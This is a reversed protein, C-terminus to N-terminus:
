YYYNYSNAFSSGAAAFIVAAIITLVVGIIMLILVSRAYNRRNINGSSSFAFILTCIFGVIPLGMLIGYGIYAWPSLPKLSEPLFDASMPAQYYNQSYQQPNGYQQFYQQTNGYQQSYQSDNNYRNQYYQGHPMKDM